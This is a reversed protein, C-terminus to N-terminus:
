AIDVPVILNGNDFGTGEARTFRSTFARTASSFLFRLVQALRIIQSHVSSARELYEACECRGGGQGANM